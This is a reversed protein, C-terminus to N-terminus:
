GRSAKHVQRARQALVEQLALTEPTVRPGRRDLHALRARLAQRERQDLLESLDLLVSLVSPERTETM